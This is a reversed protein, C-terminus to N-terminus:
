NLEKGQVTGMCPKTSENGSTSAIKVHKIERDKFKLFPFSPVPQQLHKKRRETANDFTQFNIYVFFGGM